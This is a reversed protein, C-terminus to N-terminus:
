ELTLGSGPYEHVITLTTTAYYEEFPNNYSSVVTNGPSREIDFYMDDLAALDTSRKIVFTKTGARKSTVSIYYDATVDLPVVVEKKTYFTHEVGTKLNQVVVESRHEVAGIFVTQATLTTPIVLLSLILIVILNKM